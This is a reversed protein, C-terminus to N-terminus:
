VYWVVTTLQSREDTPNLKYQVREAQYDGELTTVTIGPEIEGSDGFLVLMKEQPVIGRWLASVSTTYATLRASISGDHENWLDIGPALSMAAQLANWAREQALQYQQVVISDLVSLDGVTEGCLTLIDNVITSLPTQGYDGSQTIVTNLKNKGGVLRVRPQGYPSGSRVVTMQRNTNAITLIVSDGVQPATTGELQADCSRLGSSPIILDLRLLPLNDISCLSM